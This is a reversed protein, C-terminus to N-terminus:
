CTTSPLAFVLFSLFMFLAIKYVNFKIIKIAISVNIANSSLSL